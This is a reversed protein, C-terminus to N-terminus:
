PSLPSPARYQDNEKVIAKVVEYGPFDMVVVGFCDGEDILLHRGIYRNMAFSLGNKSSIDIPKAGISATAYTIRMRSDNESLSQSIHSKIGKWKLPLLVRGVALKRNYYSVTQSSWPIGYLGPPSTKFDQLILVKGRVEGLTPIITGDKKSYIHEAARNGLKSGAALHAKMSSLFETSEDLIGGKQIRLIVAERPHADLFDFLTTLANEFSYGTDFLGSYVMMVGNIYRCSIDIYRIGGDLQGALGVNQTQALKNNVKDTMSNHTGPISLSSLHVNDALAGMWDTNQFDDLDFSWMESLGDYSGAHTFALCAFTAFLSFRM